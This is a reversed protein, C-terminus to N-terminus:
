SKAMDYITQYASLVDEYNPSKPDLKSIKRRMGLMVLRHALWRKWSSYHKDYLHLRSKWLNLVSWARVQSTSQGGLHTVHAQPVCMITWGAKHIRWAWDVEECYILFDEDFLGTQMLIERKLMMTAGLTFDVAFPKDSQYKAKEYRGNFSGEIFRGPVPFFETWIQGLDPFMFASHQFSGDGYTLRAGVSGVEEHNMLTDYLTQTAGQHTITDPNLLYVVRPLEKESLDGEFGIERMALNNSRSFGINEDSAILNVDPFDTRILEVTNDSSASDAVWIQHTLATTQLDDILSQLANGIIDANNWTVIVIAIDLM